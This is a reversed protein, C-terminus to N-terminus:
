QNKITQTRSSKSPKKKQHRKKITQNQYQTAKDLGQDKFHQNPKNKQLLKKNKNVRATSYVPTPSSLKEKLPFTSSKMLNSIRMSFVKSSPTPKKTSKHFKNNPTMTMNALNSRSSKLICFTSKSKSKNEKSYTWQLKYKKSKPEKNM